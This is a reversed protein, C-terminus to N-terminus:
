TPRTARRKASIARSAPFSCGKVLERTPLLLLQAARARRRDAEIRPENMEAAAIAFLLLQEFLHLENKPALVARAAEFANLAFLKVLWMRSRAPNKRSSASLVRSNM